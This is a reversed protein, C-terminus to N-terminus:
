FARRTFYVTYAWRAVCCNRQICYFLRWCKLTEPFLETHCQVMFNRHILPELPGFLHWHQICNFHNVPSAWMRELFPSATPFLAAPGLRRPYLNCNTEGDGSREWHTHLHLPSHHVNTVSWVLPAGSPFPISVRSCTPFNCLLLFNPSDIELIVCGMPLLCNTWNEIEEHALLSNEAAPITFHLTHLTLTTNICFYSFHINHCKFFVLLGVLKCESCVGM